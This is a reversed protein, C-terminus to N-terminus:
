PTFLENTNFISQFYKLDVCDAMPTYFDTITATRPDQYPHFEAHLDAFGITCGGKHFNATWDIWSDQGGSGKPYVVWSGLNSGRPDAEEVLVMTTQTRYIMSQRKVPYIYWGADGGVFHSMSYSRLYGARNEDPCKFVEISKVYPWLVGDRIGKAVDGTSLDDFGVWSGPAQGNYPVCLATRNDAAYVQWANALQHQNSSCVARNTAEIAKSMSPLMIALLMVIITIVVLLEILTFAPRAAKRTVDM